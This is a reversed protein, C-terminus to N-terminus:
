RNSGSFRAIIDVFAYTLLFLAGFAFAAGVLVGFRDGPTEELVPRADSPSAPDFAVPIEVGLDDPQFPLEGTIRLGDGYEIICDFTDPSDGGDIRICSTLRGEVVPKGERWRAERTSMRAYLIFVALAGISGVVLPITM